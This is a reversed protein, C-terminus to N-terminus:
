RKTGAKARKLTLKWTIATSTTVTGGNTGAGNAPLVDNWTKAGTITVTKRSGFLAAASFRGAIEKTPWGVEPLLTADPPKLRPLQIECDTYPAIAHATSGDISLSPILKGKDVDLEIAQTPLRSGCKMDRAPDLGPDGGCPGPDWGSVRNASRSIIGPVRDFSHEDAFAYPDWTGNHVVVLKSQPSQAFMLKAPKSKLKWTEDGSGYTYSRHYCDDAGFQHRPENWKVSRQGEFQATFRAFRLDFRSASAPAAAVLAAAVVALTIVRRSM